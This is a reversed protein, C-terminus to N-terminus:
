VVRAHNFWAVRIQEGRDSYGVLNLNLGYEPWVPEPRRDPYQAPEIIAAMGLVQENPHERSWSELVQRSHGALRYAIEQRNPGPAVACRFMAFRGQLPAQYELRATSIGVVAGDVRALAVLEKDARWARLEPPLLGHAEWFAKAEERLKPDDRQWATEFVVDM